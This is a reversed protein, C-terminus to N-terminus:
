ESLKSPLPIWVLMKSHLVHVTNTLSTSCWLVEAQWMNTMNTMSQLQWCCLVIQCWAHSDGFVRNNWQWYGFIHCFCHRIHHRVRPIHQKLVADTNSGNDPLPDTTSKHSLVLHQLITYFLVVISILCSINCMCSMENKIVCFLNYFWMSSFYPSSTSEKWWSKVAM